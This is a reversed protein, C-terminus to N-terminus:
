YKAGFAVEDRLDYYERQLFQKVFEKRERKILKLAENSSRSEEVTEQVFEIIAMDANDGTRKGDYYVRTYGGPRDAYRPALVTMLKKHIDRTRVYSLAKQFSNLNGNLHYKKSLTVINDAVVRLEKAKPLTTRIREHFILQTIMTRFMAKRHDGTRSLKRWGTQNRVGM